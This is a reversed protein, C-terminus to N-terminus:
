SLFLLKLESKPSQWPKQSANIHKAVSVLGWADGRAVSSVDSNYTTMKWSEVPNEYKTVPESKHKQELWDKAVKDLFIWSNGFSLRAIDDLSTEFDQVVTVGTGVVFYSAQVSTSWDTTM